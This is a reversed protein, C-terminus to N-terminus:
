RRTVVNKEIAYVRYRLDKLRQSQHVNILKVFEELVRLSEKVRQLNTFFIDSVQGRKFEQRTSGRGVDSEIARATLLDKLPVASLIVTLQHRISKFARTLSPDDWIFRCVDECVRLGEKSRNYNSDIVRLVNGANIKPM